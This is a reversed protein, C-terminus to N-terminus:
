LFILSHVVCGYAFRVLRNPYEIVNCPCDFVGTLSAFRDSIKSRNLYRYVITGELGEVREAPHPLQICLSILVRSGIEIRTEQTSGDNEM